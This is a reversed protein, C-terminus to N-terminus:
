SLITDHFNALGSSSCCIVDFVGRESKTYNSVSTTACEPPSGARQWFEQVAYVAARQAAANRSNQTEAAWKM